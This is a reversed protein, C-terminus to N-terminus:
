DLMGYDDAVETVVDIFDDEDIAKGCEWKEQIKDACQQIFDEKDIKEFTFMMDGVVWKISSEWDRRRMYDNLMIRAM